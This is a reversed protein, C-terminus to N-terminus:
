SRLKYASNYQQQLFATCFPGVKKKDRNWVFNESVLFYVFKYLPFFTYLMKVCERSVCFVILTAAM